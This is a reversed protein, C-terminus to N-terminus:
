LHDVYRLPVHCCFESFFKRVHVNFRRNLAPGSTDFLLRCLAFRKKLRPAKNTKQSAVNMRGPQIPAPQLRILLLFPSYEAGPKVNIARKNFRSGRSRNGTIRMLLFFCGTVEGLAKGMLGAM